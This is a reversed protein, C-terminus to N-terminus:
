YTYICFESLFLDAIEDYLNWRAIELESELMQQSTTVGINGHARGTRRNTESENENITGTADTKSNSTNSGSSTSNSKDHPSYDSDDFASRENTTNGSGSSTSDDHGTASETRNTNGSRNNVDLWEERRDYNELPEYNISLAKVWREMTHMWKSSWVGIMNKMFEPNSYLVEFEGGKMLINNILEQKNIGSPVILLDWLNEYYNNFGILTIKATAM